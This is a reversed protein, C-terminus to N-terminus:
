EEEDPELEGTAVAQAIRNALYDQLEHTAALAKIVRYDLCGIEADHHQAALEGQLAMIIDYGARYHDKFCDCGSEDFPYEACHPYYLCQECKSM